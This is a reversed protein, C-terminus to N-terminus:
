RRKGMDSQRYQVYNERRERFWARMTEGLRGHSVLYM